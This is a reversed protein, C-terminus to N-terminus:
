RSVSPAPQGPLGTDPRLFPVLYELGRARRRSRGWTRSFDFWLTFGREQAMAIARQLQEDTDNWRFVVYQWVVQVGRGCAKRHLRSLNRFATEFRGGVRYRGYTEADCGDISFVIWDALREGILADEVPERVLMGDTSLAITTTPLTARIHRLADALHGYLFPEGYNFFDVREISKPLDSVVQRIVQLPLTGTRGPRIRGRLLAALRGLRPPEVDAHPVRRRLESALLQKARRLGDWALFSLGGDTYADRWKVAPSFDRVPCALCRLDCATTPEIQVFRIEAAPDVEGEHVPVMKLPCHKGIAPCFSDSTSLVWRRLERYRWGGFIEAIPQECVNGLVFDGRGDIISCVVEGNAHLCVTEFAHRCRLAAVRGKSGSDPEGLAM